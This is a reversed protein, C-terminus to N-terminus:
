DAGFERALKAAYRRFDIAALDGRDGLDAVSRALTSTARAIDGALFLAVPHRYELLFGLRSDIKLCLEELSQVSRMFPIGYQKITACMDQAADVPQDPEFLWTKYKADPLLYGIPTCITPPQYSHFREGRCEAVMREVTQFRVGVVPNIEVAGPSQYRVSQNLGLWGITDHGLELTFISGARKEFGIEALLPVVANLMKTSNTMATAVSLLHDVGSDAWASLVDWPTRGSFKGVGDPAEAAGSRGADRRSRAHGASRANDLGFLTQNQSILRV